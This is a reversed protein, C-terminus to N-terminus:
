EAPPPATSERIILPSEMLNYSSIPMKKGRILNLIIQIALQGMRYKPQDITTLPPNTHASINIGDCGVVSMEDPVRIHHIRLAHLAGIANLDNYAVVATPRLRGERSLLSTMAQFGGDVNPFSNLCWEAPLTLGNERLAQEIGRRRAASTESSALGDLYAIRTHGLSLLHRTANYMSREFDVLIAPIQAHDIRRNIVVMPIRTTEYFSILNSSAVRSSCVIVGAVQTSALRAFVRMEAAPDESTNFIMLGFGNPAAESEVGCVIEPFFPNLLDTIVLAITHPTSVPQQYPNPSEIRYGTAEVAAMVRKRTEMRIPGINRMVRSVTALSVGAQEAVDELTPKSSPTRM